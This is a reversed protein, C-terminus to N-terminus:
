VKQDSKKGYWDEETLTFIQPGKSRWEERKEETCAMVAWWTGMGAVSSWVAVSIADMGTYGWMFMLATMGAATGATIATLYRYKL